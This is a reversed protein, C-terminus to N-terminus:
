LGGAALQRSPGSEATVVVVGTIKDAFTQKKTDWGAWWWGLGSVPWNLFQCLRRSLALGVGPVLGDGGQVARIGLAKKGVTQGTRGERILQVVIAVLMAIIGVWSLIAAPIEGRDGSSKEDIAYGIGILLWMPGFNILSDLLFADARQM